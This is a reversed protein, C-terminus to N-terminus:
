NSEEARSELGHCTFLFWKNPTWWHTIKIWSSSAWQWGYAFGRVIIEYHARHRRLDGAEGNNIWGNIWACILSFMLSGHWQVKHPSNVPSRHIGWVFPWYRPFHKWKIVDDHQQQVCLCRNLFKTWFNIILSKVHQCSIRLLPSIAFIRYNQVYIQLCLHCCMHPRSLISAM